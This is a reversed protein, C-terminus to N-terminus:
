RTNGPTGSPNRPRGGEPTSRPVETPPAQLPPIPGGGTDQPAPPTTEAEEKAGAPPQTVPSQPPAVAPQGPAPLAGQGPTPAPLTTQGPAQGNGQRPAPTPPATPQGPPAVGAPPTPGPPQPRQAPPPGAAPVQPLVPPQAQPRQGSPPPLPGQPQVPQGQQFGGQPPAPQLGPQQPSLPQPAPQAPQVPSRPQSGPQAPVADQGGTRPQPSARTPDAAPQGKTAAQSPRLWSSIQEFLPPSIAWVAAIAVLGLVSLAFVTQLVAYLPGRRPAARPATMPVGPHLQDLVPPPGVPAPTTRASTTDVEGRLPESRADPSPRPLRATFAELDTFPMERPAETPLDLVRAVAVTTNDQRDARRGKVTELLTRSLKVAGELEVESVIGEVEQETLTNLGDSALLLVDGKEVKFAEKPWDVIELKRGTLASVLVSKAALVEPDNPQYHGSRVMLGAQSHDQNLKFLKGSRWLYLHSDGVSVWSLMGNAVVAAVATSAMSRQGHAPNVGGAIRTNATELAERLADRRRDMPDFSGAAAATLFTDVVIQAAEAGSEHGGLGDALVLLAGPEAKLPKADTKDQQQARAGIFDATALDFRMVGQIEAVPKTPPAAPAAEARGRDASAKLAPNVRTTPPPPSVAAPGSNRTNGTAEAPRPQASGVPRTAPQGRGSAPGSSAAGPSAVPETPRDTPM